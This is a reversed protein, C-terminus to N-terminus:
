SAARWYARQPLATAPAELVLVRGTGGSGPIKAADIIYGQPPGALKVRHRNAVAPLDDLALAVLQRDTPGPASDNVIPWIARFTQTETTATM